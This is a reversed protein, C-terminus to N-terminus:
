LIMFLLAGGIMLLVSAAGVGFLVEASGSPALTPTPTNDGQVSIDQSCAEAGSVKGQNDTFLATAKFSGGTSYTHSVQVKASESGIGGGSTADSVQGDGFNFTVKSITGDSDSGNATFNVALPAKGTKPDATLAECVPAINNDTVVPPQTETPPETPGATPETEGGGITIVAPSTGSLVNQLGQDSAGGSYALSNGYTILTPSGAETPAIAKFTVTAAKVKTNQIISNVDFGTSMSITVKNDGYVPGEQVSPFVASNVAFGNNAISLKSADFNIEIKVVSVLNTGPDVMIDLSIDDGVQHPLPSNISSVPAFSFNTAPAAQQQITQQQKVLYVAAPIGGLLLIFFIILFFKKANFHM